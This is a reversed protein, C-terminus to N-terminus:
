LLRPPKAASMCFLALVQLYAMQADAEFPAMVFEINAQQLARMFMHNMHATVYVARQFCETAESLRRQLHLDLGRKLNSDRSAHRSQRTGDKVPLPSGDFVVIPTIGCRLILQIMDMCFHLYRDGRM